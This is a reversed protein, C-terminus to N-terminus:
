PILRSPSLPREGRQNCECRRGNAVPKEPVVVVSATPAYHNLACLIGEPPRFLLELLNRWGFMEYEEKAVSLL